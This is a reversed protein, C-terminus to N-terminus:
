AVDLEDCKCEGRRHRGVTHGSVNFGEAQLVRTLDSHRWQPDDLAAQLAAADDDDAAALIDSIQCGANHHAAPRADSLRSAFGM